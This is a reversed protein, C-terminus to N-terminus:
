DASTIRDLWALIGPISAGPAELHSGSPVLLQSAPNAPLANFMSQRVRQLAPYDGDPSIYLVPVGAQVQQVAKSQNMAGDPDFWDLYIRPTTIVPYLGKSGEFDALRTKEEGHGAALLTRASAVTDDLRDHLLGAGVNSGPAIAIVGDVHLRGALYLAFLGGQSHGAVVLKRAGQQRLTELAANVQAVASAVDADYERRGSWPMELNAVLVGQQRLANALGTVHKEPSGGKGHMLVVGVLPGSGAALASANLLLLPLLLLRLLRLM